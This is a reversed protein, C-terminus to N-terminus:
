PDRQSDRHKRRQVNAKWPKMGYCEFEAEENSVKKETEAKEMLTLLLHELAVDQPYLERLIQEFDENMRRQFEAEAEGKGVKKSLEERKKVM